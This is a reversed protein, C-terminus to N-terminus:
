LISTNLSNLYSEFIALRSLDLGYLKQHHCNLRALKIILFLADISMAAGNLFDFNSIM